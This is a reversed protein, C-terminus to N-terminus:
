MIALTTRKLILAKLVALITSVLSSEVTSVKSSSTAYTGLKM